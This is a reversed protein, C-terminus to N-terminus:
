ALKAPYGAAEVAAILAAVDTGGDATVTANGTKHDPAASVVGSVEELAKKVRAECHPCMMGEVSLVIEKQMKTQEKEETEKIKEEKEETKVSEGITEENEKMEGHEATPVEAPVVKGVARRKARIRSPKSPDFASLRLANLVVTVSSLCMALAGFMPPLEWGLLATFAGAALPIGVANYCFAWFLNQKIVRLTAASIRFLRVVASLEEGLIVADASAIAIDTGRGMAVGLDAATLAPADNIGDGVMMVPGRERYKAVYAAKEAPLVGSVTEEVGLARGVADAVRPNDGTLLVTRLGMRSLEAVAARADPRLTDAVAIIGLFRAGHAFCLPTKGEASLRDLEGRAEPPLPAIKSIFAPTGGRLPLGRYEASVGFGLVAAFGSLSFEGEVGAARAYEVVAEALPHESRSELAAALPLLDEEYILTETVRPHGVTVTGTKDLVVTVTRGAKELAEATKFLVGRRAAAGSGVMIAVPTALGLACPCSIVLVAVGRSVAHGVDFGGLILWLLFTVLAISVVAPVFVAAVRDALKAIPAKTASAEEVARVISSVATDEGVRTARCLLFGSRNVTGARVPSGVTKEVPISEGTLASEDVASAGEEVEGDVPIREGPRLSFRDGVRVRSVPVTEEGEKRVLHAVDPTLASLARIASTTKGKAREELFKGLTVLAPIMAAAEFTLGHLSGWAGLALGVTVYVGWLFSVGSGLAVLTDMNPALHLAGKAGVLFFKRNVALIALSLAGQLVGMLLPIERLIPPCPFNWMACGMSFYMLPLLLALSVLFRRLLKGEEGSKASSVEGIGYGAAVVACEIADPSATGEVSLKGSLLNVACTKVGAVGAVAAEVRAACAACSMGTVRYVTM